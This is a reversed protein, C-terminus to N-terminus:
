SLRRLLLWAGLGAVLLGGGLGLAMQLDQRAAESMGGYPFYIRLAVAIAIVVGTHTLTTVLGLLLAHGVTGREGVLYAAVLTKGHGPTLAHVGGVAAALSVLAWFGYRTDLFLDLLSLERLRQWWGKEKSIQEVRKQMDLNPPEGPTSSAAT